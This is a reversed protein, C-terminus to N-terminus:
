YCCYGHGCLGRSYLQLISNKKRLIVIGIKRLNNTLLLPFYTSKLGKQKQNSCKYKVLNKEQIEMNEEVLVKIVTNTQGM